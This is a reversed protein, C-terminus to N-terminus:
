QPRDRQHASVMDSSRAFRKLISYVARAIRRKLARVAEGTANGQARHRQSTQGPGPLCLQTIAIRHLAANLQRDGARSLRYRDTRGSSDPVPAGPTCPLAPRLASGPWGPLRPRDAQGCDPASLWAPRAAIPGAPRCAPATAPGASRDPRQPGPHRQSPGPLDQGPSLLRPRRRGPRARRHHSGPGAPCGVPPTNWTPTSCGTSRRPANPSWTSMITSWCSSRGPRRTMAPPPCTRNACPRGPSRWPASRDSKRQTRVAQRAAAMLRPPVRV